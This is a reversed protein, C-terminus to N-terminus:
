DQGARFCGAGRGAYGARDPLSGPAILMAIIPSFDFMMTQPLISRIPALIPETLDRLMQTIRMNGLPDVWSLLVRFLIALSLVEILLFIFSEIFSSPM